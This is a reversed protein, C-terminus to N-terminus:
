KILTYTKLWCDVLLTSDGYAYREEYGNLNFVITYVHKSVSDTDHIKGKVLEYINTSIKTYQSDRITITNGSFSIAVDINGNSLEMISCYSTKTATKQYSHTGCNAQEEPTLKTDSCPLTDGIPSSSSKLKIEEIVRKQKEYTQNSSSQISQATDIVLKGCDAVAMVYQREVIESGCGIVSITSDGVEVLLPPEKETVQFYTTYVFIGCSIGFLLSLTGGSAITAACSFAGLATSAFQVWDFDTNKTTLRVMALHGSNGPRNLASENIKYIKQGDFPINSQTTVTGDPAVIVIDVTTDTFNFFEIVHGEAIARVPLGNEFYFAISRGDPAIFIAGTVDVIEGTETTQTMAIITERNEFLAVLAFDPNKTKLVVIPTDQNPPTSSTSDPVGQAPQEPSQSSASPTSLTITMGSCAILCISILICLFKTSNKM